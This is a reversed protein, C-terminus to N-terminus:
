LKDNKWNANNSVATQCKGLDNWAAHAWPADELESMAADKRMIRDASFGSKLKSWQGGCSSSLPMARQPVLYM